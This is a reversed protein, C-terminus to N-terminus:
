IKKQGYDERYITIKGNILETKPLRGISTVGSIISIMDNEQVAYCTDM